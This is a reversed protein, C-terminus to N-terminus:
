SPPPGLAEEFAVGDAGDDAGNARPAEAEDAGDDAGSAPPAEAEDMAVDSAAVDDSVGVFAGRPRLFDVGEGAIIDWALEGETYNAARLLEAARRRGEFYCNSLNVQAVDVRSRDQGGEPTSLFSRPNQHDDSGSAVTTALHRVTRRLHPQKALIADVGAETANAVSWYISRLMRQQNCYTQNALWKTGSRRYAAFSIHMTTSVNVLHASLSPRKDALLTAYLHCFEGLLQLDTHYREALVRRDDFEDSRRGRLSAVARLFSVMSPVNMADSFGTAFMEGLSRPTFDGTSALLQRLVGGTFSVPGITMGTSGKARERFRKGCHKQECGATMLQLHGTGTRLSYLPLQGLHKYLTHEQQMISSFFAQHAIKVFAAAGDPQITTMVGRLEEGRPDTHWVRQVLDILLETREPPDVRTCGASTAVVKICYDDERIPGVAINTIEPAYHIRGEDFATKIFDLDAESKVNLDVHETKAHYCAGRLCGDYDDIRFRKEGKVDDLTTRWLCRVEPPDTSFVFKEFNERIVALDITSSMPIYRPISGRRRLTTVSAGGKTGHNQIYNLRTGGMRWALIDEELEAEEYQKPGYLGAAAKKYLDITAAV